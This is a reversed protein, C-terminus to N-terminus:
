CKKTLDLIMEYQNVDNIFKTKKFFDTTEQDEKDVNVIRLYPSQETETSIKHLLASGIGKRRMDKRVAIHLIEGSQRYYIGYGVCEDGSYCGIKEFHDSV